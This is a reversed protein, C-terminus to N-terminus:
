VGLGTVLSRHLEVVQKRTLHRYALRHQSVYDFARKHNLVM